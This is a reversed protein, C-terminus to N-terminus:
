SASTDEDLVMIAGSGVMSGAAAISEYDLTVNRAEEATLIPSSSGGPIM